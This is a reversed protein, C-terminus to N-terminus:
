ATKNKLIKSHGIKMEGNMQQRVNKGFDPVYVRASYGHQSIVIQRKRGLVPNTEVFRMQRPM